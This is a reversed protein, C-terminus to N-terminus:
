FKLRVQLKLETKHNANIQNLSGTQLTTQNDYITSAVRVWIEFNRTIDWNVLFYARQGKYYLAPVSYSYLVDNEFTYVRSDYGETDFVAYRLTFTFPFNLKKYIVDQVFAIGDQKPKDSKAVHTYEIRSKFKIEPTIQASLNYRYNYQVFPTIYDYSNNVTTNEYRTRHRFRVYMDIKKTPTYNLQGFADRGTSPSSINYKLWEFKYQDLYM